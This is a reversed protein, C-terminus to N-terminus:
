TSPTTWRSSSTRSTAAISRPSSARAYRSCCRAPSRRRGPGGTRRDEPLATRRRRRRRAAEAAGRRGGRSHTSHREFLDFFKDERPLLARFWGLMQRPDRLRRDCWGFLAESERNPFQWPECFSPSEALSPSSLPPLREAESSMISLSSNKMSSALCSCKPRAASCSPMVWGVSDAAILCSSSCSPTMSTLRPERKWPSVGSPSCTSTQARRM